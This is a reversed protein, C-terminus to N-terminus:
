FLLCFFASRLRFAKKRRYILAYVLTEIFISANFSAKFQDLFSRETINLKKDRM